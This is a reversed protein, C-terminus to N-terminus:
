FNGCVGCDTPIMDTPVINCGACSRQFNRLSYRMAERKERNTLGYKGDNNGRINYKIDILEKKSKLDIFRTPPYKALNRYDNSIQSNDNTSELLYSYKDDWKYSLSLASLLLQLISFPAAIILLTNLSSPSLNYSAAIGGILLPVIIGLFNVTKLLRGIKRGKISYIYSTGFSHLADDWCDQLIKDTNNQNETAM